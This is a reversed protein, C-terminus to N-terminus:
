LKYAAASPKVARAFHLPRRLAGKAPRAKALWERYVDM